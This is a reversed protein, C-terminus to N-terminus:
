GRVLFRFMGGDKRYVLKGSRWHKFCKAFVWRFGAPASANVMAM